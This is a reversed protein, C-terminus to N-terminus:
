QQSYTSINIGELAAAWALNATPYIKLFPQSLIQLLNFIGRSHSLFVLVARLTFTELNDHLEYFYSGFLKIIM